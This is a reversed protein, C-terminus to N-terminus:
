VSFIDGLNLQDITVFPQGIVREKLLPGHCDSGATILLDNERCYDLFRQILEPTHYNTYCELGEIGMAVIKDLEEDSLGNSVLKSGPHALIPHGGAAIIVDAAEKPSPYDTTDWKVHSAVFALAEKFTKFYGKDILFNMVTGGGRRKDFKFNIFEDITADIGQSILDKVQSINLEKMRRTNDDCLKVIDANSPDIGYGLIHCIKNDTKTTFEVAKIFNINETKALRAAAEVNEISDHDTVAFLGIDAEKVATILDSPDWCGDSATTHIHLDVRM